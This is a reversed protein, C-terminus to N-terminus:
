RSSSASSLDAPRHQREDFRTTVKYARGRRAGSLGLDRMLREVNSRAVRICERNLQTLGSPGMSRSTTAESGRRDRGQAGSYHRGPGVPHASAQYDLLHEPRNAATSLSCGASRSSGSSHHTRRHLRSTPRDRTSSGRSSLRPNSPTLYRLTALHAFSLSSTHLLIASASFFLAPNPQAFPQRSHICPIAAPHMTPDHHALAPILTCM